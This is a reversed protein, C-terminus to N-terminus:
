HVTDSSARQRQLKRWIAEFTKRTQARCFPRLWTLVADRQSPSVEPDAELQARVDDICRQAYSEAMDELQDHTTDVSFLPIWDSM